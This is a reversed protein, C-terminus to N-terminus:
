RGTTVTNRIEGTVTDVWDIRFPKAIRGNAIPMTVRISENEYRRKCAVLEDHSINDNTSAILLVDDYGNKKLILRADEHPANIPLLDDLEREVASNTYSTPTVSYIPINCGSIVTWPLILVLLRM